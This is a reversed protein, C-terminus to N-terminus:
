NRQQCEGTYRWLQHCNPIYEADMEATLDSVDAIFKQLIVFIGRPLNDNGRSSHIPHLRAAWSAARNGLGRGAERGTREPVEGELSEHM